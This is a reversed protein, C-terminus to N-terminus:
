EPPRAMRVTRRFATASCAPACPEHVVSRPPRDRSRREQPPGVPVLRGHAAPRRFSLSTGGPSIQASEALDEQAHVAGVHHTSRASAWGLRAVPLDGPAAEVGNRDAATSANHSAPSLRVSHPWKSSARVRGVPGCGPHRVKSPAGRGVTPLPPGRPGMVPWRETSTARPPARSRATRRCPGGGLVRADAPAGGPRAPRGLGSGSLGVVRPGATVAAHPTRRHAGRSRSSSAGLTLAGWAGGLPSSRSSVLQAAVDGPSGRPRV